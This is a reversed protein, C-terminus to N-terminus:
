ETVRSRSCRPLTLMRTFEYPWGHLLLVAPGNAPGAEAYGVNLAGANIQKLSAFSTHTRRVSDDTPTGSQANAVDILGLRGIALTMAASGLFRRRFQDIEHSM